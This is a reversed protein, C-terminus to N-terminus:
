LSRPPAYLNLLILFCLSAPLNDVVCNIGWEARALPIIITKQGRRKVIEYIGGYTGGGGRERERERESGREKETELISHRQYIGYDAGKLSRGSRHSGHFVIRSCLVYKPRILPARQLTRLKKPCCGCTDVVHRAPFKVTLSGYREDTTACWSLRSTTTTISTEQIM